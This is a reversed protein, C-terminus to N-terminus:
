NQPFVGSDKRASGQSSMENAPCLVGQLGYAVRVIVLRMPVSQVLSVGTSRHDFGNEMGDNSFSGFKEDKM